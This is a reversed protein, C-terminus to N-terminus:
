KSYELNYLEYLAERLDLHPYRLLAYGGDIRQRMQDTSQIDLTNIGIPCYTSDFKHDVCEPPRHEYDNCFYFTGRQILNPCPEPASLPSMRLCCDGCHLCIM